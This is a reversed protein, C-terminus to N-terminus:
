RSAVMADLRKWDLLKGRVMVARIRRTNRIDALPDADLIVLDATKKPSISGHTLELNFYRAANTTAARLAEAPTLGADVLLALEDHLAAGPVVFADGTETGALLEVGYRNMLGVIRRHFDYDAQLRELTESPVDKLALRPDIWTQRVTKPVSRARSDDALQDLGILALRRRFTLTPAQFVGYRAMRRFLEVAKSESFTEYTRDRIERIAASDKRVIAEAHRDRLAAEESSCALAIGFLHEMSRQRSDVAEAVSVSEPVNGSFVARRVRARQALALYADRPLTSLVSIFDVGETDLSDAARRGDVPGAARVVPYKAEDSLMGDVPAGGTFVRPGTGALATKAWTRTRKYMSGMDRIGTVGHATYLDFMPESEWLHVHMDWLGPIAFKGKGDIIKAKPPIRASPGAAMIRSAKVVINGRKSTGTNVEVITINRIATTQAIAAVATALLYLPLV